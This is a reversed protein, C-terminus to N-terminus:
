PSQRAFQQIDSYEGGKYTLRVTIFRTEKPIEIFVKVTEDIPAIGAAEWVPFEFEHEPLNHDVGYEIREIAGRYSLLGTFYALTRGDFDRFSVWSTRTLEILRRHESLAESQPDFAFSFPGRWEGRFDQYRVDFTTAPQSLAFQFYSIPIPQGTRPDLQRMVGTAKYGPDAQQRWEYSLIPELTQITGMWGANSSSWTISVPSALAQDSIRALSAQLRTASSRQWDTAVAQDILHKLLGGSQAHTQFARLWRREQALEALTQQGLQAASFTAALHFHAPAFAPRSAIVAMLHRRQLAPAELLNVAYDKWFTDGAVPLERLTARAGAVGEQARLFASLRLYPDLKGVGGNFLAAYSKRANAYDGRLEYVRANHYHEHPARPTPITGGTQSLQAFRESLNELSDAIRGTNDAIDRNATPSGATTKFWWTAGAFAAVLVLAAATGALLRRRRRAKDFGAFIHEDLDAILRRMGASFYRGTDLQVGHNFAITRISEPLTDASPMVTDMGLLLPMIPKEFALATELEIRVFDNEDFGRERMIDAWQPGILMIVIDAECLEQRLSSRFDHAVQLREVDMFVSARGYHAELAQFIGTRAGAAVGDARRYSMFIRPM